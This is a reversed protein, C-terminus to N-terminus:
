VNFMGNSNTISPQNLETDADLSQKIKTAIDRDYKM